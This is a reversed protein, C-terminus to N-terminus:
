AGKFRTGYDVAKQRGRTNAVLQIALDLVQALVENSRAQEIRIALPEAVPGCLDLLAKAAEERRHVLWPALPRDDLPISRTATAAPPAPPPLPLTPPERGPFANAPAPWPAAPASVIPAARTTPASAPASATSAQLAPAAALLSPQPRPDTNTISIPEIFGGEALAALATEGFQPVLRMLEDDTRRGDVLILLSRFRPALRHVRTEIEGQGKATKRYITPM